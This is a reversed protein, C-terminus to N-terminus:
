LGSVYSLGKTTTVPMAPMVGPHLGQMGVKRPHRLTKSHWRQTKGALGLKM